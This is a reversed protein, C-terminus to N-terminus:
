WAIEQGPPRDPQQEHDSRYLPRTARTGARMDAAALRLIRRANGPTGPWGASRRGCRARVSRTAYPTVRPQRAIDVRWWWSPM